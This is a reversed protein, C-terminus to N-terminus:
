LALLASSNSHSLSTRAGASGRRGATRASETCKKGSSPTGWSGATARM